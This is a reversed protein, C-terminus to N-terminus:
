LVSHMNAPAYSLCCDWRLLIILVTRQVDGLPARTEDRKTLECCVCVKTIM